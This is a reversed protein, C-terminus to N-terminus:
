GRLPKGLTIAGKSPADQAWGSRPHLILSEKGELFGLSTSVGVVIPEAASAMPVWIFLILLIAIAINPFSNKREM